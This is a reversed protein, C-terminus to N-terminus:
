QSLSIEFHGLPAMASSRASPRDKRNGGWAPNPQRPRSFLSGTQVRGNLRAGSGPQIYLQAVGDDQQISRTKKRGAPWRKVFLSRARCERRTM